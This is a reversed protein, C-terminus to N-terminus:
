RRRGGTSNRTTYYTNGHRTRHVKGRTRVETSKGPTLSVLANGERRRKEGRKVPTYQTPDGPITTMQNLIYSLTSTSINNNKSYRKYIEKFIIGLAERQVTMGANMDKWAVEISRMILEPLKKIFPKVARIIYYLVQIMYKRKKEGSRTYAIIGIIKGLLAVMMLESARSYSRKKDRSFVFRTLRKVINERTNLKQSKFYNYVSSIMTRPPQSYLPIIEFLKNMDGRAVLIFAITSLVGALLINAMELPSMEDRLGKNITNKVQVASVISTNENKVQIMLAQRGLNINAMRVALNNVRRNAEKKAEEVIKKMVNTNFANANNIRRKFINKKNNTISLADINNKYQVRLSNLNVSM